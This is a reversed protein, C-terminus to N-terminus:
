DGPEVQLEAVTKRFFYEQDPPNKLNLLSLVSLFFVLAWVLFVAPMARNMNRRIQQNLEDVNEAGAEMAKLNRLATGSIPILYLADIIIIAFLFHKWNLWPTSFLATDTVYCLIIGSPLMFLFILGVIQDIRHMIRARELRRELPIEPNKVDFHLWYVLFDFLLWAAAMLAHTGRFFVDLLDVGLIEPRM